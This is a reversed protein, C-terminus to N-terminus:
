LHIWFRKKLPKGPGMEIVNELEGGNKLITRESAANGDDCTVLLDGISKARETLLIQRLMESAFGRRRRSPRVFYGIHGGAIKLFDNLEHRISIRGVVEDAQVAWYTTDRVFHPAPNTERTILAGIYDEFSMEFFKPYDSEGLYIWSNQDSNTTLEAFASRFTQEYKIHPRELMISNM